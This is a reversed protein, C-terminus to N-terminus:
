EVKIKADQIVKPWRAQGDKILAVMEGVEGKMPIFGNDALRKRVDADALVKALADNWGKITEAPTGAPTMLGFWNQAVFGPVSDKLFPLGPYLAVPEASALALPKLKKEAIAGVFDPMPGIQLDVRGAMLDVMAPAGGRYPVHLIDTGVALNIYEGAVHGISGVGGSAFSMKGRNAKARAILEPVTNFPANQYTVMIMPIDALVGVPMLAKHIDIPLTNGPLYPAVTLMSMTAFVATHGDPRAKSVAEAAIFGNAGANNEVIVRKGLHPELASAVIRTLTDGGGGPAFGIMIKVDQTPKWQAQAEGGALALATLALLTKVTTRFM